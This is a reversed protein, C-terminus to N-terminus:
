RRVGKKIIEYTAFIADYLRPAWALLRFRMINGRPAEPADAAGGLLGRLEAVVASDLRAAKEPEDGVLHLVSHLRALELCRRYCLASAMSGAFGGLPDLFDGIARYFDTAQRYSTVKKHVVSEPRMVYGYTPTEVLAFNQCALVHRGAVAVDEYRMSEPFPQNLYLERRALKNWPAENTKEYCLDKIYEGQDIQVARVESGWEIDESAKSYPIVVHKSAALDACTTRQAGLLVSLYQPSVFDDGDVFTIFDSKAARVGANRAGGPGVNHPLRLVRVNDHREYEALLQPTDDTSADDVLLIEYPEEFQQGLMSGVCRRVLKAEINHFTAIMSVSPQTTKAEPQVLGM